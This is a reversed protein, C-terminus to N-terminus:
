KKHETTYKQRQNESNQKLGVSSHVPIETTNINNETKINTHRATATM